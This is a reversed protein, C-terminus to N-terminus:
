LLTIVKEKRIYLIYIMGIEVLHYVIDTLLLQKNVDSIMRNAEEKVNMSDQM